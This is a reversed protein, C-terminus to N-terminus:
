LESESESRSLARIVGGFSKGTFNYSKFRLAGPWIFIQCAEVVESRGTNEPLPEALVMYVFPKGRMGRILRTWRRPPYPTQGQDAKRSPSAPSLATRSLASLPVHVKNSLRRIIRSPVFRLEQGIPAFFQGLQNAFLRRIPGKNKELLVSYIKNRCEM